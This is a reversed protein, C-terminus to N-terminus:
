RRRMTALASFPAISASSATEWELPEISARASLIRLNQDSFARSRVSEDNVLRGRVAVGKPISSLSSVLAIGAAKFEKHDVLMVLVDASALAEDLAGARV